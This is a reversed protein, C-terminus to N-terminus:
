SGGRLLRYIAVLVGIVILAPLLTRIAVLVVYLGVLAAMGLLVIGIPGIGLGLQEIDALPRRSGKPNHGKSRPRM